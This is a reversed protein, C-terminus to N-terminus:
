PTHAISEFSSLFFISVTFVASQVLFILTRGITLSKACIAESQLGSDRALYVIVLLVVKFADSSLTFSSM